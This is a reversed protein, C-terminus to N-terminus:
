VVYFLIALTLIFGDSAQRLRFSLHLHNPHFNMRMALKKGRLEILCHYNALLLCRPPISLIPATIKYLLKTNLIEILLTGRLVLEIFTALHPVFIFIALLILCCKVHLSQIFWGFLSVYVLIAFVSAAFRSPIYSYCSYNTETLNLM